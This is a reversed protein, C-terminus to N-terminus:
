DVFNNFFVKILLKRSVVVLGFINQANIVKFLCLAAFIESWVLNLIELNLSEFIKLCFQFYFILMLSIKVGDLNYQKEYLPGIELM